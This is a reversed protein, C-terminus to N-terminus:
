DLGDAPPVSLLFSPVSTIVVSPSLSPRRAPWAASGASLVPASGAATWPPPRLLSHATGVIRQQRQPPLLLPCRTTDITYGLVHLRTTGVFAGKSPHVHLGLRPFLSVAVARAATAQTLTVPNPQDVSIAFDDMYPMMLYGLSRLHQVVPRLLRTLAWPALKLGLPLTSPFWLVTGVRSALRASERPALRIHHFADSIDWSAMHDGKKLMAIFSPLVDYKFARDHLWCNVPSLDVVMLPKRDVDAVFSAAQRHPSMAEAPTAPRCYGRNVWRAVETKAWPQVDPPQIITPAM